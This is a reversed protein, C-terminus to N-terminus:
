PDSQLLLKPPKDVGQITNYASLMPLVRSKSGIGQKQELLPLQNKQGRQIMQGTNTRVACEHLIKKPGMYNRQTSGLHSLSHLIWRGMCSIFPEGPDIGSEPLDRLTPFPLRSWYEQRPFEVSLPAQHGVTWPTASNSIVEHCCARM